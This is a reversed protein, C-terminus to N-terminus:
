PDETSAPRLRPSLIGTAPVFVEVRFGGGPTPGHHLTGGALATEEALGLLGFGTGTGPATTGPGNEVLVRAGPVDSALRVRVVSGPAHRAANFLAEALARFLLPPLATDYAATNELDLVLGAASLTELLRALTGDDVRTAREADERLLAHITEGSELGVADIISLARRAGDPDTDLLAAAANAQIAMAGISHSTADHLARAM